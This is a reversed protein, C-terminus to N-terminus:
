YRGAADLFWAFAVKNRLYIAFDPCDVQFEFYTSILTTEATSGAQFLFIMM